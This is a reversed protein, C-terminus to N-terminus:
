LPARRRSSSAALRLADSSARVELGRRACGRRRSSRSPTRRRRRASARAPPAVKTSSRACSGVPAAADRGLAVSTFGLIAVFLAAQPLLRTVTQWPAEGLSALVGAEGREVLRAAALAWGVPWGTLVAAEVAVALLSRAFPALHGV